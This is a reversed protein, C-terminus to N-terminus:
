KNQQALGLKEHRGPSRGGPASRDEGHLPYRGTWDADITAATGRLSDANEVVNAMCSVARGLLQALRQLSAVPDTDLVRRAPLAAIAHYRFLHLRAIQIKHVSHQHAIQAL